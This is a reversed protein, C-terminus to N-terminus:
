GEFLDGVELGFGPLVEPDELREGDRFITKSRDARHITVTCTKPDAIWVRLAGADFYDRMKERMAAPTNSPSLVEIAVDPAGRSWNGPTNEWSGPEIFVSIDPRRVTAPNMSIICDMEVAVKGCGTERAWNGLHRALDAQLFAHPYGPGPEQVTLIGRVLEYRYGDEPEEFRAYEEVTMPQPPVPDKGIRVRTKTTITAVPM